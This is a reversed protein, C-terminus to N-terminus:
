ATNRMLQKHHYSVEHLLCRIIMAKCTHCLGVPLNNRILGLTTMNHLIFLVVSFVPWQAVRYRSSVSKQLLEQIFM